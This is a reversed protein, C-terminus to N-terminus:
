AASETSRIGLRKAVIGRVQRQQEAIPRTADIVTLGCEAVMRDYEDVVRSQFIRFSEGIVPSVGLDMGAEYPKIKARASMLRTLALESTVRFYLAVDPKTAFSYLRRVWEPHVGRACDRAFATYAYRDAIVVMGAKLPPMIQYLYRDAFDTAHLLSFTIPTLMSKKKGTRTAKKVLASSNWETFSVPLERAELWRRLLAAQTTKGSGDIGEVVILCGPYEHNQKLNSM